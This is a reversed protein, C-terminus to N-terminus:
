AARPGSRVERGKGDRMCSNAETSSYTFNLAYCHNNMLLNEHLVLQPKKWHKIARAYARFSTKTQGLRREHRIDLMKHRNWLVTM